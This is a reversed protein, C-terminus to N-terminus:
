RLSSCDPPPPTPPPPAQGLPATFIQPTKGDPPLPCEAPPVDPSTVRLPLRLQGARAFTFVVPYTLGTRIATNLTNLRLDIPTTDPLTTAAVSPPYGAALTHHAPITGAGLVAGGAAIPSSVSVLRDTITGQNIITVQVSVTDGPRYAIADTIPGHYAFTADRIVLDGVQGQSGSSVPTRIQSSPGGGCGTILALLGLLSALLVTPHRRTPLDM